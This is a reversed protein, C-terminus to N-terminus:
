DLERQSKLRSSKLKSWVLYILPVKVEPAKEDISPEIVEEQELIVLETIDIPKKLLLVLGGLMLLIPFPYLFQGTAGTGLFSLTVILYPIAWSLVGIFVTSTRRAKGGCYRLIQYVFIYGPIFLPFFILGLQTPYSIFNFDIQSIGMFPDFAFSISGVASFMGYMSGGYFSAFLFPTGIVATIGLLLALFWERPPLKFYRHQQPDSHM